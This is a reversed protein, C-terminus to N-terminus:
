KKIIRTNQLYKGNLDVLQLTYIGSLLHQIQIPKGQQYSNQAVTKGHIDIIQYQATNNAAHQLFLQNSAPNPFATLQSSSEVLRNISTITSGLNDFNNVIVQSDLVYNYIKLLACKGASAENPVVLDDQFFHVLNESSLQTYNQSDIFSIKEAGDAYVLVQNTTVNKSLVYYAYENANFPASTSTAVPYFNLQGFFVYAGADASRNKFDIVRKWSNLVDLSFYLEITFDGSIFNNAAGNDFTFGQNTDFNYVGKAQNGLEPLNDQLFQGTGIQNLAPGANNKENFNGNFYYELVNQAYSFAAFITFLIFLLYHKKMM